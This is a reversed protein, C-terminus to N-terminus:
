RLIVIKNIVSRTQDDLRSFYIGPSVRKGQFDRGDWYLTHNGAMKEGDFLQRVLQGKINYIGIDLDTTEKVMFLLSTGTSNRLNVPNPYCLIHKEDLGIQDPNIETYETIEIEVANSAVSNGYMYIATVYYTYSGNFLNQDLFETDLVSQLLVENRYINYGIVPQLQNQPADWQLQVNFGDVIEATLNSTPSCVTLYADVSTTTESIIEVDEVIIEFYNLQRVALTHLGVPLQMSYFGNNNTTTSYNNAVIQVDELPQNDVSDYIFGNLTGFIAPDGTITINDINWGSFFWSADTSGLSFRLKVNASQDALESVNFNMESWSSETITEGNSWIEIWSSGGNVSLDIYAHDYQSSEVNLWKYFAININLFDSCDIIPSIAQYGHNGVNGEYDGPQNGLGSLDTGLCYNGDFASEPDPNGHDGGFGRPSGIEFEGTLQWQTDSEFDEFWIVDSWILTVSFLMIIVIALNIKKM